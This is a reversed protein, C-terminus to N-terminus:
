GGGGEGDDAEFLKVLDGTELLIGDGDVLGDVGLLQKGELLQSERLLGHQAGGAELGAQEGVTEFRGDVLVVGREAAPARGEGGVDFERWGV